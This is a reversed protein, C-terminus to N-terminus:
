ACRRPIAAGAQIEAGRAELEPNGVPAPAQELAPRDDVSIERERRQRYKRMADVTATYAAKWLYSSPFERKTEGQREFAAAVRILAEQTIDEAHGTLWSPCAHRVAALLRRRLPELDLAVSRARPDPPPSRKDSM